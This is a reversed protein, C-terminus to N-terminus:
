GPRGTSILTRFVIRGDKWATLQQKNISVEILAGKPHTPDPNVRAAASPTPRPFAIPEAGVNLSRSPSPLTTASPQAVCASIGALALACLIGRLTRVLRDEM